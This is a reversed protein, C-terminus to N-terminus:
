STKFPTMSDDRNSIHEKQTDAEKGCAFDGLGLQSMQTSCGDTVASVAGQKCCLLQFTSDEAPMHFSGKRSLQFQQLLRRQLSSKQLTSTVFIYFLLHFGEPDFCHASTPHKSKLESNPTDKPNQKTKSQNNLLVPVTPDTQCPEFAFSNAFCQSTGLALLPSPQLVHCDRCLQM